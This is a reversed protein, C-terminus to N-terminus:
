SKLTQAIWRDFLDPWLRNPSGEPASMAGFGHGISLTIGLARIKSRAATVFPGGDIM